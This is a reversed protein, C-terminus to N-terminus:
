SARQLPADDAAVPGFETTGRVPGISLMVTLTRPKVARIHHVEDLRVRRVSGPGRVLTRNPARRAALRRYWRVSPIHREGDWIEETYGGCLIVSVFPSAHNHLVDDSAGPYVRNVCVRILRNACLVFRRFVPRNTEPARELKTYM